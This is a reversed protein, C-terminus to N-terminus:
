GLVSSPEDSSMHDHEMTACDLAYSFDGASIHPTFIKVIEEEAKQRKEGTLKQMETLSDRVRKIQTDFGLIHALEDDSLAVLTDISLDESPAMSTDGPEEMTDAM